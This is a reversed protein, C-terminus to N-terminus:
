GSRAIVPTEPHCCVRPSRHRARLVRSDCGRTRLNLTRQSWSEVTETCCDKGFYSKVDLYKLHLYYLRARAIQVIAYGPQLPPPHMLLGDVPELLTTQHGSGRLLLCLIM